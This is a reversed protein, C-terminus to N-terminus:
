LVVRSVTIGREYMLSGDREFQVTIPFFNHGRPWRFDEFIFTDPSATYSLKAISLFYKEAIGRFPGNLPKQFDNWQNWIILISVRQKLAIKNLERLFDAGIKAENPMRTCHKGFLLIITHTKPFEELKKRVNTINLSLGFPATHLVQIKRNGEMEEKGIAFAITALDQDRNEASGSLVVRKGELKEARIGLTDPTAPNGTLLQSVLAGIIKSEAPRNSVRILSVRGRAAFVCKGVWLTPYLTKAKPPKPPPLKIKKM